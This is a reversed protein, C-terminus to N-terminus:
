RFHKDQIKLLTNESEVQMEEARKAQIAKRAFSNGNFIFRLMDIIDFSVNLDAWNENEM